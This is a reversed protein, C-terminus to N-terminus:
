ERRVVVAGTNTAVAILGPSVAVQYPWYTTNIGDTPLAASTMAGTRLDLVHLATTGGILAHDSDLMPISDLEFGYPLFQPREPLLRSWLLHGGAIAYASWRNGARVLIRGSRLTADFSAGRAPVAYWDQNGEADIAILRASRTEGNWEQVFTTGSDPATGLVHVDSGAAAPRSWITKGDRASIAVLAPGEVRRAIDDRDFLRFQERGGLLLRGEGLDGLFDGSDADLTRGWVQSGDTGDIRVLREREGKAPALVAVDGDDLFQTAFPDNAHVASGSLAACWRREGNGAELSVLTPAEKSPLTAVLYQRDTADYASRKTEVRVSWRPDLTKDDLMTFDPNDRTRVGIGQAFASVQAWQEYHYGVAGLVKGFPPPAADFAAVLADRDGDPQSARDAAGLFPSSSRAGSVETVAAGCEPLLRPVAFAALAAFVVVGVVLGIV